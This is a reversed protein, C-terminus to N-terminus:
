SDNRDKLLALQQTGAWSFGMKEHTQLISVSEVMMEFQSKLIVSSDKKWYLPFWQIFWYSKREINRYEAIMMKVTESGQAYM